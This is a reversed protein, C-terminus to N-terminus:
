VLLIKIDIAASGTVPRVRCITRRLGTTCPVKSDFLPPVRGTLLVPSEISEHTELQSVINKCRNPGTFVRANYVPPELMEAEVNCQFCGLISSLDSSDM